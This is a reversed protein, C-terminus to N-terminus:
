WLLEREWEEEELRDDGRCSGSSRLRLLRRLLLDERLWPVMDDAGGGGRGDGPPDTRLVPYLLSGDPM